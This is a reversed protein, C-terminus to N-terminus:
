LVESILQHDRTLSRTSHARQAPRPLPHPKGPLSQVSSSHRIPRPLAPSARHGPYDTVQQTLATMSSAQRMPQSGVQARDSFSSSRHLPRSPPPHHRPLSHLNKAGVPLSISHHLQPEKMKVPKMRVRHNPYEVVAAAAPQSRSSFM